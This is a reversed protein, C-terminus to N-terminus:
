GLIKWNHYYELAIITFNYCFHGAIGYWLSQYKHRFYAFLLGLPLLWLLLTLSLHLAAFLLSTTLITAPVSFRKIISSYIFGRFALEEFIAPQLCLFLFSYFFPASSEWFLLTIQSHEHLQSYSSLWAPLFYILSGLSATILLISLMPKWRIQTRDLLKVLTQRSYYAYISTIVTLTINIIIFSQYNNPMFSAFQFGVVILLCIVYYTIPFLLSAKTNQKM